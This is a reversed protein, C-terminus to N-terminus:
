NLLQKSAPLQCKPTRRETATSTHLVARFYPNCHTHQQVVSHNTRHHVSQNNTPLTDHLVVAKTSQSNVTCLLLRIFLNVDFM